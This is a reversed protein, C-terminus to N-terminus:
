FQPTSAPRRLPAGILVGEGGLADVRRGGILLQVATVDHFQSATYVVQWVRGLMTSSGGGQTFVVGLDVTATGGSVTVGRLVTGPPIESSIGRAREARSPGQLLQRLAAGALAPTGGAPVARSAAVLTQARGGPETRVFFIQVQARAPGATPTRGPVWARLVRGAVLAAALVVVILVLWPLVPRGRRRVPRRQRHSRV